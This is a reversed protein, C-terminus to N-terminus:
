MYNFIKTQKTEITPLKETTLFKPLLNISNPDKFEVEEIESSGHSTKELDIKLYDASNEIMFFFEFQEHDNIKFQQIYLLNGVKPKIGLEEFIERELAQVLSEGPDIGGGPTCWYTTADKHRYPKLKLCLLKNKHVILGRM